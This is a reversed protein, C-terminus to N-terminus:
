NLDCEFKVPRKNVISFNDVNWIWFKLYNYWIFCIFNLIIKLQLQNISNSQSFNIGNQIPSRLRFIASFDTNQFSTVGLQRNVTHENWFSCNLVKMSSLKSQRAIICIKWTRVNSMSLTVIKMSMKVWKRQKQLEANRNPLSIRNPFLKQIKWEAVGYSSLVVNLIEILFNSRILLLLWRVGITSFHRIRSLPLRKQVVGRLCVIGMWMGMRM